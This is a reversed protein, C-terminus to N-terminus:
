ALDISVSSELSQVMEPLNESPEKVSQFLQRKKEQCDACQRPKSQFLFTSCSPQPRPGSSHGRRRCPPIWSAIRPRVSRRRQTRGRRWRCKTGRTLRAVEGLKRAGMTYKWSSVPTRKHSWSGREVHGLQDRPRRSPRRCAASRARGRHGEHPAQTLSGGLDARFWTSSTKRRISQYQKNRGRFSIAPLLTLPSLPKM